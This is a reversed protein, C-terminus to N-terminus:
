VSNSGCKQVTVRSIFHVPLDQHLLELSPSLRQCPVWTLVSTFSLVGVSVQAGLPAVFLSFEYTFLLQLANLLNICKFFLLAISKLYNLYM